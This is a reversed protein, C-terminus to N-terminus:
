KAQRLWRRALWSIFDAALVLIAGFLILLLLEDYRDRARAEVVFYGLSVVGLMGLVTAERVCTEFRYFFYLLYRGLGLPYLASVAIQSRSAGLRRLGALPRRPLNEVTEAGLRSLIGANHVALALVAPWATPGLVALLLFAWMYEPVARLAVAILRFSISVSRWWACDESSLYPDCRMLTRSALPATLLGYAGALVISLAAIAFTAGVGTAGKERWVQGVWQLLAGFGGGGEADRLPRPMADHGFFRALNAARRESFLETVRVDGGFWAYIVVAALLVLSGRLFRDRPRQRRLEHVRQAVSM